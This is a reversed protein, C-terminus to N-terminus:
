RAPRWMIPDPASVPMYRASRAGGTVGAQASVVRNRGESKARYLLVDAAALLQAAMTGPAGGASRSWDTAARADAWYLGVSVTIRDSVDSARHIIHAQEVDQRLREALARLEAHSGNAWMLTFEEGGYRGCVDQPRRAAANLIDAVRRIACDGDRHGYADNYAKFYDIDVMAIGFGCSARRAQHVGQEVAAELATRNFLGTVGDQRSMHGLLENDLWARRTLHEIAYSGFLAVGILLGAIAIGALESPVDFDYHAGVARQALLGTILAIFAAACLTLTHRSLPWCWAAIGAVALTPLQLGYQLMYTYGAFAAPVELFHMYYLPTILHLLLVILILATRTARGSLILDRRFDRELGAHFRLGGFGRERQANLSSIATSPGPRGAGCDARLARTAEHPAFPQTM